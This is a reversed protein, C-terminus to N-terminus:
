WLIILLVIGRWGMLMRRYRDVESPIVRRDKGNADTFSDYNVVTKDGGKRKRLVKWYRGKDDTLIRRCLTKKQDSWVVCVQDKDGTVVNWKGEREPYKASKEQIFTGDSKYHRVFTYGEVAHSGTVRSGSLLGAMETASLERDYCGSLVFGLLLFILTGRGWFPCSLTPRRFGM